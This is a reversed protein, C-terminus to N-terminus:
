GAPAAIAISGSETFKIANGVLNHLIQQLRNEDAVVALLDTPVQNELRIQKGSVLPESLRVVVEVVSRLDLPKLSLTLDHAKLKSFDLISDVLTALRKGSAIILSLDTLMKPTPKGAAGDIMSEAMGIIGNLPTRLEHSTNALFQDKLKDINQLHEVRQKEFATKNKEEEILRNKEKQENKVKQRFRFRRFLAWAFIFGLIAVAIIANRINKQRQLKLSQIEADMQLVAIESQYDYKAQMRGIEQAQENNLISDQLAKLRELYFLAEFKGQRKNLQYLSKYADGQISRNGLQLGIEKARNLYFAASDYQEMEIFVQGIGLSTYGLDRESNIEKAIDYGWRNYELAKQYSGKKQYIRGIENYTASLGSKDGIKKKIDVSKLYLAMASDPLDLKGQIIGINHLAIALGPKDGEAEKISLSRKYYDLAQGLDKEREYVMGINNYIKAVGRPEDIEEYIELAMLFYELAKEFLGQTESALGSDNYSQALLLDNGLEKFLTQAETYNEIADSYNGQFENALGIYNYAIAINEKDKLFKYIELSQAWSIAAQKFNGQVRHNQGILTLAQGQGAMFGLRRALQYAQQGNEIGKVPDLKSYLRSLNNLLSVKSTDSKANALLVNLSDIANQQGFSNCIYLLCLVFLLAYKKM